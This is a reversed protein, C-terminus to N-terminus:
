ETGEEEGAGDEQGVRGGVANRRNGDSPGKANATAWKVNSQGGSGISMPYGKRAKGTVGGYM